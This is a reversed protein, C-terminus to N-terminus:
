FLADFGTTLYVEFPRGVVQGTGAGLNFRVGKNELQLDLDYGHARILKNWGVRPHEGNWAAGYNYFATFDLRELYLIWLYKDLDPLVPVTLNAKARAQTDGYVASFLGGQDVLPYSNQNYGGGTGPVFTKLPRYLERFDRREEGRMRSGEVGVSTKADLVPLALTLTSAAGLENYDFRKNLSKPAVRGSVSNTLSLRWVAHTIGLSASPETLFGRGHLTPGIYPKLYAYKVGLDFSGVGGLAHFGTDSELRVGKEDLFSTQLTDPTPGRFVGNFTQQRYAALNLTPTFRTSTLAVEEYPFHSAAGVLFTARVTENQMEDMLPVSVVGIQPGLADDAGIWPFLFLPRPRWKAPQSQAEVHGTRPRDKDLAPGDFLAKEEDPALVQPEKTWLDAGALATKLDIQDPVMM